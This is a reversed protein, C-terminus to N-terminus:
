PNDASGVDESINIKMVQEEFPVEESIDGSGIVESIKVDMEKGESLLEDSTDQPPSEIIVNEPLNAIGVVISIALVAIVGGIGVAISKRM